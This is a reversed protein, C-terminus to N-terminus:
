TRRRAYLSASWTADLACIKYDVWGRAMAYARVVNIDLDSPLPGSRKPWAIWLRGSPALRRVAGAFDRALVTESECFLILLDAPGRGQEELSAGEPLPGLTREFSEPANFTLARTDKEFGLKRILPRHPASVGLGPRVPAVVPTELAPPLVSALKRWTTFVADPFERRVRAVKDAAGEVFVIPLHRSAKRERLLAAVARGHSPLRELSIVFAQPDIARIRRLAEGGAHLIAVQHGLKEIRGAREEAEAANWHVLLM